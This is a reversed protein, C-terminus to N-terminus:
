CFSIVVATCMTLNLYWQINLLNWPQLFHVALRRCSRCSTGFQPLYAGRTFLIATSVLVSCRLDISFCSITKMIVASRIWDSLIWASVLQVHRCHYVRYVGMLYFVPQYNKLHTHVATCDRICCVSLCSAQSIDWCPRPNQEARIWCMEKVFYVGCVWWWFNKCEKKSFFGYCLVYCAACVM